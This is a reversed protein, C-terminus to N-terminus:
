LPSNPIFSPDLGLQLKSIKNSEGLIKQRKGMFYTVSSSHLTSWWLLSKYLSVVSKTWCKLPLECRRLVATQWLYSITQSYREGIGTPLLPYKVREFHNRGAKAASQLPSPPLVRHTSGSMSWDINLQSFPLFPLLVDGVWGGGKTCSVWSWINIVAGVTGVTNGRM